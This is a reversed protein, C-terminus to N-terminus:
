AEPLATMSGIRPSLGLRHAVSSPRASGASVLAELIANELYTLGIRTLTIRDPM